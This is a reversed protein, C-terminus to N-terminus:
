SKAFHCATKVSSSLSVLSRCMEKSPDVRRFEGCYLVAKNGFTLVVASSHCKTTVRVSRIIIIISIQLAGVRRSLASFLFVCMISRSISFTILFLFSFLLYRCSAFYASMVCELWDYFMMLGIVAISALTDSPFRGIFTDFKFYPM